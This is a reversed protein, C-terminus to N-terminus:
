FVALFLIVQCKQVVSDPFGVSITFSRYPRKVKKLKPFHKEHIYAHIEEKMMEQGNHHEEEIEENIEDNHSPDPLNNEESVEGDDQIIVKPKKKPIEQEKRIRMATELFDEGREESEEEIGDEEEGSNLNHRKLERLKKIKKLTKAKSAQSEVKAAM